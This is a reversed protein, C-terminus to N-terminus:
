RKDFTVSAPGEMWVPLYLGNAYAALRGNRVRAVRADIVFDGLRKHAIAKHIKGLLKQFDHAFNQTLAGAVVDSFGPSNAIALALDSSTSDTRGNVSLDTFHVLQSGPANEPRAVFWIRGSTAGVLHASGPGQVPWTSVDAGVAIKGGPAGYAVVHDFHVMVAGTGPLNFPRQERKALAKAIVPEIEAYDAVVPVFVRVLGTQAPQSAMPPLPTPLPDAPRHGVVAQTLAVLGLDLRLRHGEITYGGYSLRQPVVRLWVPPNDANLSFVAFAKGWIDAVHARLDLKALEAPLKRELRAVVPKLKEDAKDTFTVRNGLIDIGPPTAWDYALRVRGSVQWDRAVDLAIHAHVMADGTATAGAIGGVHRAHLVAHVPIDAIIEHGTGHLVIAGRTATGAIECTLKPTIAIRAGFLHVRQPGVCTVGPKDITWLQRPVQADLLRQLSALDAYIPVAITSTIAPIQAQAAAYPPAAPVLHRRLMLSLGLAVALALLVAVALWRWLGRARVPQRVEFETQPPDIGM